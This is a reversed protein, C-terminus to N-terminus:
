AESRLKQLIGYYLGGEFLIPMIIIGVFDYKTLINILKKSFILLNHVFHM